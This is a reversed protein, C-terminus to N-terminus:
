TRCTPRASSARGCRLGRAAAARRRSSASVRRPLRVRSRRRRWSRLSAASPAVDCLTIRARIISAASSRGCRRPASPALASSASRKSRINRRAAALVSQVTLGMASATAAHGTTLAAGQRQEARPRPRDGGPDPRDLSVCQAGLRGRMPWPRRRHQSEGEGPDAFFDRAGSPVVVLAITGSSLPARHRDLVAPADDKRAAFQAKFLPSSLDRRASLRHGRRRRACAREGGADDAASALVSRGAALLRRATRSLRSRPPGSTRPSANALSTVTAAHMLEAAGLEVNLRRQRARPLAHRPALHRGGRLFQRRRRCRRASCTRRPRRATEGRRRQAAAGGRPAPHPSRARPWGERDIKGNPLRPLAEVITVSAPVM